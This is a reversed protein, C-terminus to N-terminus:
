IVIEKGEILRNENKEFEEEEGGGEYVDCVSTQGNSLIVGTYPYLCSIRHSTYRQRADLGMCLHM